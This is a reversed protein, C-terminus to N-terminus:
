ISLQVGSLEFDNVRKFLHKWNCGVICLPGYQTAAFILLKVQRKRMDLVPYRYAKTNKVRQKSEREIALALVANSLSAGFAARGEIQVNPVCVRM